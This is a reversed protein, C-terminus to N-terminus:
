VGKIETPYGPAYYELLKPVEQGEEFFYEYWSNLIAPWSGDGEKSISFVVHKEDCLVRARSM